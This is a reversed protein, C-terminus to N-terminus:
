QTAREFLHLTTGVEYLFKRVAGSTRTAHPDCVLTTYVGVEKCFSRVVERYAGQNPATM